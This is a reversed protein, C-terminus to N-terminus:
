AIWGRRTSPAPPEAGGDGGQSAKRRGYTLKAAALHEIDGRSASLPAMFSVELGDSTDVARVEVLGAVQRMELLM